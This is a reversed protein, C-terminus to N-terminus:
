AGLGVAALAQARDAYGVARVAKGDRFWTVGAWRFSLPLGSRAGLGSMCLLAAVYDEGAALIEEVEYRAGAAFM